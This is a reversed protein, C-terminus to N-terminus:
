YEGAPLSVQSFIDNFIIIIYYLPYLKRQLNETRVSPEPTSGITTNFKM